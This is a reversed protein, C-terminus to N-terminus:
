RDEYSVADLLGFSRHRFRLDVLAADLRRHPPPPRFEPALSPLAHDTRPSRHRGGSDYALWATFPLVHPRFGTRPLTNGRPLLPLYPLLDSLSDVDRLGVAHM